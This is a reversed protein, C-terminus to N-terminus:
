FYWPYQIPTRTKEAHCNLCLAQCNSYDNNSPDDDIHDFDRFRLFIGCRNCQYNQQMLVAQKTRKEFDKRVVRARKPELRKAIDSYMKAYGRYIQSYSQPYLSFNKRRM